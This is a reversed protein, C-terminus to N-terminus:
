ACHNLFRQNAEAAHADQESRGLPHDHKWEICLLLLVGPEDVPETFYIRLHGRRGDDLVQTGVVLEMVEPQTALVQVEGESRSNPRYSLEGYEAREMLDEIGAIVHVRASPAMCIALYDLIRQARGGEAVLESCEVWRGGEGATGDRDRCSRRGPPLQKRARM